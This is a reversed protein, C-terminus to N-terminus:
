YKLPYTTILYSVYGKSLIENEVIDYFSLKIVINEKKLKDTIPTQKYKILGHNSLLQQHIPGKQKIGGTFDKENEELQSFCKSLNKWDDGKANHLNKNEDNGKDIIDEKLSTQTSTNDSKM